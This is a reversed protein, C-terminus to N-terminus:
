EPSIFKEIVFIFHQQPPAGAAIMASFDIAKADEVAAKSNPDSPQLSHAEVLKGAANVLGFVCVPRVTMSSNQGQGGNVIRSVKKMSTMVPTKAAKMRDTPAFLSADFSARKELTDVQIKLVVRGGETVTVSRPLGRDAIRAPSSYDYVAYRGPAESHILLLGTQSDICEESEEWARGVDPTQVNRLRGLLLCTVPSGHYNAVFLRISGSNAYSVSPLPNYLMSRAEQLRLPISGSTADAYAAKGAFIGTLAYGGDSKATWRLGQGPVFRDEMKWGGDYETEGHSDATFHIKLDWPQRANRLQYGSRARTLLSLAAERNAPTDPQVSGTVLELPDAPVPAIRLTNQAFATVSLGGLTVTLLRLLRQKLGTRMPAVKRTKGVMAMAAVTEAAM